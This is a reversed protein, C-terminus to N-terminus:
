QRRMPSMPTEPTITSVRRAEAMDANIWPSSMGRQTLWDATERWENARGALGRLLLIPPGDGGFDVCCLRAGNVDLFVRESGAMLM